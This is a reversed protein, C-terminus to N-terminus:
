KPELIARLETGCANVTDVAMTLSRPEDRWSMREWRDALALCDAVKAEADQRAQHLAHGISVQRQWEAHLEGNAERAAALEAQCEAWDLMRMVLWM